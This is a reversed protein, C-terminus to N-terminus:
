RNRWWVVMKFAQLAVLLGVVIGNIFIAWKPLDSFVFAANAGTLLANFITFKLLAMDKDAMM